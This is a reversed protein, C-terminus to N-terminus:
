PTFSNILKILASSRQTSGSSHYWVRNIQCYEPRFSPQALNFDFCFPAVLNTTEPLSPSSNPSLNTVPITPIITPLSQGTPITPMMPVILVNDSTDAITDFNPFQGLERTLTAGLPAIVVNKSFSQGYIGTSSGDQEKSAWVVVLGGNALGILSPNTQADNTTTNIAFESGIKNGQRDYRQGYVGDSSGDQGLSEWAIVFGGDALATAKPNEQSQTIFSNVQIENSITNSNLDYVQAYVGKGDGDQDNSEWTVVFSGDNLGTIHPDRQANITETNVQLENGVPNSSGDFRQTYIGEGSGDQDRSVWITVFGGDGLGVVTPVTQDNNTTTNIPFENGIVNGNSNYRQGYIGDGDGEQGRSEWTVMFGGDALNTVSPNEQSNNTTTNIQFEGAVKSGQSDYIQGYVGRNNGDQNNSEWVVVFNGDRLATVHPDEQSNTTATNIQFEGGVKSNQQDYIQGYVGQVSGDQDESEWVVVFGGDKLATVDATDQGEDTFTNVAFEGGVPILDHSGTETLSVTGNAGSSHRRNARVNSYSNAVPSVQLDYATLTVTGGDGGSLGGDASVEAQGAITLQNAAQIIVQGGNSNGIGDASIRANDEVAIHDAFLAVVGQQVAIEGLQEVSNSGDTTLNFVMRGLASESVKVQTGAALITQGTPTTIQGQHNITKALLWVQGGNVTTIQAGNEVVIPSGNGIQNFQYNGNLFDQDSINLTSLVLSQLDVVAGSGVLIGNGNILFVAGNSQLTGFIQSPNIGTVRNLIASQSNEQLFRTIEGNNISFDQWNIIAGPSNTIQLNETGLGQFEVRGNVVTPNLPNAIAGYSISALGLSLLPTFVKSFM